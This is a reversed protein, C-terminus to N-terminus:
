RRSDRTPEYASAASSASAVPALAAAKEISARPGTKLVVPHSTPAPNAVAVHAPLSPPPATAPMPAVSEHPAPAVSAGPTTHTAAPEGELKRLVFTSAGLPLGVGLIAVVAVVTVGLGPRLRRGKPPPRSSEAFAVTGGKRLPSPPESGVPSPPESAAVFPREIRATAFVTSELRMDGASPLARAVREVSAVGEATAWPALAQALAAVHPFRQERGPQLCRMVVLDLGEPLSARLSRMPAPRQELIAAFLAGTTDGKFPLDGTLLEYLTVGISWIDARADVDKASRLQEPSVYRPSGLMAGNGTLQNSDGSEACKSIGFDLVKVLTSGDKRRALFLNAPKLDRHVIGMAHAEAIAEMAGLISDVAMEISLPGRTRLVEDFDAGELLEMAIFVTDGDTGVDLVRAVHENEIRAASRAENIFRATALTMLAVTPRLVKVAVRQALLEHRAAFVVGMGGEGLRKEIRYKGALLTGPRPLLPDVSM